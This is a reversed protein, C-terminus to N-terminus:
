PELGVVGWASISEYWDGVGDQSGQEIWQNVAQSILLELWSKTSSRSFGNGQWSTLRAGARGLGNFCLAYWSFNGSCFHNLLHACNELASIMEKMELYLIWFFVDEQQSWMLHQESFNKWSLSFYYVAIIPFSPHTWFELSHCISDNLRLWILLRGQFISRLGPERNWPGLFNRNGYKEREPYNRFKPKEIDASWLTEMLYHKHLSRSWTWRRLHM